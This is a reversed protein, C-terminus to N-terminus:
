ELADLGLVKTQEVSATPEAEVEFRFLYREELLQATQYAMRVCQDFECVRTNWMACLVPDFYM